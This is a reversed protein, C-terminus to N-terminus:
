CLFFPLDVIVSEHIWAPLEPLVGNRYMVSATAIFWGATIDDLTYELKEQGNM